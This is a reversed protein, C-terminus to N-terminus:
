DAAQRCSNEKLKIEWAQKTINYVIAATPRTDLIQGELSIIRVGGIKEVAKQSRINGEGIYFLVHDVYNFAYEMMLLKMSRNYFGGWYERALFTWGIEVANQVEPIRHFRTSGIIQRTKKDVIAFAGKSLMADRFLAEFVNKKYRDRAPHQEWLLPDSAVGYLADFDEERLPRLLLLDNELAPQLDFDPVDM